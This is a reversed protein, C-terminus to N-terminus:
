SKSRANKFKIYGISMPVIVVFIIALSVLMQDIPGTLGLHNSLSVGLIIGFPHALYIYFSAASITMLLSRKASFLRFYYSPKKANIETEQAYAGNAEEAYIKSPKEINTSNAGEAYISNVKQYKSEFIDALLYYGLIAITSFIIYAFSDNIFRYGLGLMQAEYFQYTYIGGVFIFLGLISLKYRHLMPIAADYNKGFYCGLVFYLAYNLSFRDAWSIQLLWISLIVIIATIPLIATGSYKKVIWHIVGFLLYFQIIIVVFYLHYILNGSIVKEIFFKFSFGYTGSYLFYAYYASCFFLYPVLIKMFRKQLFQFYKFERDKYVYFLSLGSAFIFMPVSPKALRNVILLFTSAPGAALTVVPTATVHIAIVMLAALAKYIDLSNIKQKLHKM